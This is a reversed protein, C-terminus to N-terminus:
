SRPEVPSVNSWVPVGLFSALKDADARLDNQDGHDMVNLRRGDTLVLNLEYSYYSSKSGKVHEALLQLAQIDRLPTAHKLKNFESLTRAGAPGKWFWGLQRDFVTPRTVFYLMGAGIAAFVLGFGAPILASAPSSEQLKAVAIGGGLALGMVIFVLCFLIMSTSVKVELRNPGRAILTTTKFNAGGGKLPTWATQQAGPDSPATVGPADPKTGVVSALRERRARVRLQQILQYIHYGELAFGMLLVALANKVLFDALDAPAFTRILDPAFLALVGAAIMIGALFSLPGSKGISPRGRVQETM